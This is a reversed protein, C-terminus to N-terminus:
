GPLLDDPKGATQQCRAARGLRHRFVPVLAAWIPNAWGNATTPPNGGKSVGSAAAPLRSTVWRGDPSSEGSRPGFAESPIDAPHDLNLGARRFLPDTSRRLRPVLKAARVPSLLWRRQGQGVCVKATERRTPITPHGALRVSSGNQCRGDGGRPRRKRSAGRQPRRRRSAGWQPHRRRSVGPPPHRRRSADRYPLRRRPAGRQPEPSRAYSLTRVHPRTCDIPITNGNGM